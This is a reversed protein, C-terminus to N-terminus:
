RPSSFTRRTLRPSSGTVIPRPSRTAWSRRWSTPTASTTSTSSSSSVWRPAPPNPEVPVRQRRWGLLGESALDRRLQDPGTFLYATMGVARAGEVCYPTDDVFVAEHPEVGEAELVHEFVEPEPKRAGIESSAYFEDFVALEDAYQEKWVPVHAANTNTLTALRVGADALERYLAVTGDITGTFIDRWGADFTRAGVDLERNEALHRVFRETSLGREFDLYVEDQFDFRGVVDEVSEGLYDAWVEFARRFDFSIVVGGLDSILLRAPM